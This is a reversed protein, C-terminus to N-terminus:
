TLLIDVRELIDQKFFKGMKSKAIQRKLSNLRSRVFRDNVYKKFFRDLNLRFCQSLLSMKDLVAQIDDKYQNFLKLWEQLKEKNHFLQMVKLIYSVKKQFKEAIIQAFDKKKMKIKNDYNDIDLKAIAKMIEWKKEMKAVIGKAQHFELEKKAPEDNNIPNFDVVWNNGTREKIEAEIQEKVEQRIEKKEEETLKQFPEEKVEQKIEEKIQELKEKDKLKREEIIKDLPNEIIKNTPNEAINKITDEDLPGSQTFLMQNWYLLYQLPNEPKAKAVMSQLKEIKQETTLKNSEM